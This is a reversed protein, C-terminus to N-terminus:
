QKPAFVEGHCFYGRIEGINRERDQVGKCSDPNNASGCLYTRKNCRRSPYMKSCEMVRAEKQYLLHNPAFVAGHRFTAGSKGLIGTETRCQRVHTPATQPGAWTLVSVAHVLPICNQTRWLGLKRRIYNNSQHLWQVMAFPLGLNGWYETRPRASGLMLRPLKLVRM